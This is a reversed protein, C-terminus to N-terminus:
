LNLNYELREAVDSSSIIPMSLYQTRGRGETVNGTRSVIINEDELKKLYKWLTTHGKPKCEFEECIVHYLKEADGSTMEVDKRLRRCIALLLMQTHQNFQDVINAEMDDMLMVSQQSSALQVDSSNIETRGNGESEAIMAANQLLEIALRADGRNSASISIM